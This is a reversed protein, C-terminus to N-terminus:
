SLLYIASRSFDLYREEIQTFGAAQFLEKWRERSVPKQQTLEHYLYYYIAIGQKERMEEQTPRVAEFAILPVGPFSKRYGRLFAILADDGHYLIEHLIFFITAAEATRFGAPIGEVDRIDGTHLTIRDELNAAKVRRRGEEIAPAAIDIGYCRVDPNMECLSRLFTADGCGLDVVRRVQREQLIDNVLPFYLWQEMEGSGTAVYASNRYFDRSYVKEGTMMKDLLHFVEAYGFSLEMWGRLVELTGGAKNTLLFRTGSRDLIAMSYLAECVARVVHLDLSREKAFEEIDVSDETMLKDLLGVSLLAHILSTAVYGKIMDDWGAKYARGLKLMHSPGLLRVAKLLQSM